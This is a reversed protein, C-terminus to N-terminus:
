RHCSLSMQSSWLSQMLEFQCRSVYYLKFILLIFCSKRNFVLLQFIQNQALVNLGYLDLMRKTSCLCETFVWILYWMISHRILIKVEQKCLTRNGMYGLTRKTPCRSVTCSWILRRLVRRGILNEVTQKCFIRHVESYFHFIGCLLRANQFMGLIPLLSTRDIPFDMRSLNTLYKFVVEM